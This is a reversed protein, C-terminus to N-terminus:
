EELDEDPDENVAVRYKSGGPLHSAPVPSDLSLIPERPQITADIYAREQKTLGFHEYLDVDAWQRTMPVAPVFRFREATVDQTSKRQLVLFRVFKTCLYSAYNACEDPSDFAGAVFYSETCVSGPALAIPEGIVYSIERGHGDGAKPVLVKWKAVLDLNREFSKEGVFAVGSNYIIPISDAFPEESEGRYNTRWEQSFALRPFFWSEISRASVDLVKQVLESAENDRIVVGHGERLDRRATSVIQGDIRTSFECDGDYDRDWLFYSVGGKIEVQPFVDFLKPNDVLAVLRRDNVMQDRYEDLGLGGTFWRSPTIFVIYRPDLEIARSVFQHYIPMTRTTGEAGIQYPPNGIIVDFKMGVMEEPPYTFHNFSYAYTERHDRVLAEPARCISCKVGVITHESAVYHINGNPNDFVVVWDKITTDVVGSGTANKTQYLSRRAIDASLNTIAAGYLMNRQIHERRTDPDPQWDRLGVMLRKFVERLFVGSKTAPDLWRYEPKTWAEAPLLDLMANAVKPPTFVEDNPLQALTELVDPVHTPAVPATPEVTM